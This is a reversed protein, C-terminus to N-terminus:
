AKKAAGAKKVGALYACANAVEGVIGPQTEAMVDYRGMDPYIVCPRSMADIEDVTIKETDLFRKFTAPHPRKVIVMGAVTDVVEILKGVPGHEKIAKALAAKDHAERELREVEAAEVDHLGAIENEAEALAARAAAKRAALSQPDTSM